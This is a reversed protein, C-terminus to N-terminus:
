NSDSTEAFSSQVEELVGSSKAMSERWVEASGNNSDTRAIGFHEVASSGNQDQESRVEESGNYKQILFNCMNEVVTKADEEDSSALIFAAVDEMYEEYTLTYDEIKPSIVNMLQKHLETLQLQEASALELKWMTKSEEHSQREM